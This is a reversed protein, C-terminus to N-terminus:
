SIGSEWDFQPWPQIGMEACLAAQRKSVAGQFFASLLTAYPHGTISLERQLTEGSISSMNRLELEVEDTVGLRDAESRIESLACGSTRVYEAERCLLGDRISGECDGEFQDILMLPGVRELDLAYLSGGSEFVQPWEYRDFFCITLFRATLRKDRVALEDLPVHAINPILEILLGLQNARATYTGVTFPEGFRLGQFCPVPLQLLRALLYGFVECITKDKCKFVATKELPNDDSVLLEYYGASVKKLNLVNPSRVLAISHPSHM